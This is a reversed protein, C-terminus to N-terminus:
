EHSGFICYAKRSGAGENGGEKANYISAYHLHTTTKGSIYGDGELALPV